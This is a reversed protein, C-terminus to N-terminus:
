FARAIVPSSISKVPQDMYNFGLPKAKEEMNVVSSSLYLEQNILSIQSQLNDINQTIRNLEQTKISM